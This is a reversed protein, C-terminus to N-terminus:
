GNANFDYSINESPEQLFYGQIYNVGVTWLIALSNADEVGMAVSKAGHSVAIKNLANLKDQKKQNTALDLMFDNDYKVFDVPLHKLLNESNQNSGFQDIALNCKIKKLGDILKKAAQTHTRLDSDKIQFTLWPGKAKYERLCDCIWLLLSDDELASSSLSVFFNLKRNKQRQSSLEAIANKIIWRDIAIMQGSQEAAKMFYNPLIEEDNQDVLRTLVAYNERSDGQLSVIPQFVLKFKDNNLAYEILDHIKNENGQEKDGYSPSMEEPDYTFHRNGGERKATEFAQYAQNILEQSSETEQSQLAIGISCSTQKLDPGDQYNMQQIVGCLHEALPEADLTNSKESLLTFTHDGFRALVDDESITDQLTTAVQKLLSDSNAIGIKSRISQFDDLVLYYLAHNPGNETANGLTEDVKQMFFQRNILGTQTDQNSIERIKEELETSKSQDRIIIQTCPEQDISAPAFELRAEFTEQNTSQCTILLDSPNKNIEKLFAKFRPRESDAIMDLIPLGEIEDIDVFGFMELYAPNAHVHMGEHIYAIADRSHEVLSTCREESEKLRQQLNHLEKRTLVDTFERKIVLQLHLPDDASVVDRAGNQMAQLLNEPDQNEYIIILPTSPHYKRCLEVSKELSVIANDASCLIIDHQQTSLAELLATEDAIHSPHITLGANRLTSIHREADNPSQDVILLTIAAESNHKSTSTM